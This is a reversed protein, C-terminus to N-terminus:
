KRESNLRPAPLNVESVSGDTERYFGILTRLAADNLNITIPICLERTPKDQDPDVDM